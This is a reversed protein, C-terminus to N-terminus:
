PRDVIGVGLVDPGTYTGIAPGLYIEHVPAGPFTERLHAAFESRQEVNSGGGVYLAEANAHEGVFQKLRELARSYTRVTAFEAVEGDDVQVIPKIRLLSGAMSKARGIRGGRQLYELTSVLAIVRVRKLMGEVAAVVDATKAGEKAMRAALLAPVGLGISVNQSDVLHIRDAVDDLAARANRASNLTGSLKSSIHISIVEDGDATLRRYIDSFAEVSPQSTRPLDKSVALREYFAPADIDVGDRFEEDGFYLTLPVVTIDLGELLEPTLDCTSDTVVHLAM